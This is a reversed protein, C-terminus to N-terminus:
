APPGARNGAHIWLAALMGLAALLDARGAIYTVAETAIPHLGFLAAAVGAAWRRRSVRLVLGYLLAVCALHLVLNTLHYGFAREGNGLVAYNVLYSLTTAPRYLGGAGFPHWYDQAFLAAVNHWTAAQVTPSLLILARADLLFGGGLSNAYALAIVIEIAVLVVAPHASWDPRPPAPESRSEAGAIRRKKAVDAAPIGAEM